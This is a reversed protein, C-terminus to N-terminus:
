YIRQQTGVNRGKKLNILQKNIAINIQLNQLQIESHQSCILCCQKKQMEKKTLPPCPLMGPQKLSLHTTDILRLSEAFFLRFIDQKASACTFDTRIVNLPISYLFVGWLMM